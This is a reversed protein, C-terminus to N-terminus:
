NMDPNLHDTFTQHTRLLLKQVQRYQKTQQLINQFIKTRSQEEIVFERVKTKTELDPIEYKPSNVSRTFEPEKLLLLHKMQGQKRKSNRM